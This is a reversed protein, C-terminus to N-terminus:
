KTGRENLGDIRRDFKFTFTPPQPRSALWDSHRADEHELQKRVADRYGPWEEGLRLGNLQVRHDIRDETVSM